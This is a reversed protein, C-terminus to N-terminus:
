YVRLKFARGFFIRHNTEKKRTAVSIVVWPQSEGHEVRSDTEEELM